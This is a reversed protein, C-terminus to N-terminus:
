VCQESPVNASLEPQFQPAPKLPFVIPPDLVQLETRAESHIMQDRGGPPSLMYKLRRLLAADCHKVFCSAQLIRKSSMHFCYVCSM